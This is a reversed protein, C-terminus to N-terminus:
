SKKVTLLTFRCGVSCFILHLFSNERCTEILTTSRCKKISIRILIRSEMKFRDMDPMLVIGIWM